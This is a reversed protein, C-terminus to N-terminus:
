GGGPEPAHGAEYRKQIKLLDVFLHKEHKHAPGFNVVPPDGINMSAKRRKFSCYRPLGDQAETDRAVLYKRGDSKEQKPHEEYSNDLLPIPSDVSAGTPTTTARAPAFSATPAATVLM